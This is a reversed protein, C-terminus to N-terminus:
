DSAALPAASYDLATVRPHLAAAPTTILVCQMSDAKMVVVVIASVSCPFGNVSGDELVM